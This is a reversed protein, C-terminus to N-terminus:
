LGGPRGVSGAVPKEGSAAQQCFQRFWRHLPAEHLRQPWAAILGFGAIELPLPYLALDLNMGALLGEPLVALLETQELIAGAVALSPIILGVERRRGLRALARDTPGVLDGRNPSILLHECACFADLGLQGALPHGRRLACLYRESPLTATFLDPPTFEQITLALDLQGNRMQRALTAGALPLVALRIKPALARLHRFHPTLVVNLAYAAVTITGEVAGPDFHEVELLQELGLLAAKM